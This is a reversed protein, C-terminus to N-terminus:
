MRMMRRFTKSHRQWVHGGLGGLSIIGMGPRRRSQIRREPHFHGYETRRFRGLRARLLGPGSASPIHKYVNQEIQRPLENIPFAQRIQPQYFKSLIRTISLTTSTARRLEETTSLKIPFFLDAVAQLLRRDARPPSM